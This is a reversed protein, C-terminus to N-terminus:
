YCCHGTYESGTGAAVSVRDCSTEYVLTDYLAMVRTGLTSPFIKHLKKGCSYDKYIVPILFAGWCGYVERSLVTLCQENVIFFCNCM